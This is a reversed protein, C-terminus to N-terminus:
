QTSLMEAFRRGVRRSMSASIAERAADKGDIAVCQPGPGSVGLQLWGAQVIPTAEM